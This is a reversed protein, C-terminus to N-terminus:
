ILKEVGDIFAAVQDVPVDKLDYQFIYKKEDVYLFIYYKYDKGIGAEIIEKTALEKIKAEVDSPFKLKLMKPLYYKQKM